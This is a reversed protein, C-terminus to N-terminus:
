EAIFHEKEEDICRHSTVYEIIEKCRIGYFELKSEFVDYLFIQHANEPTLNEVDYADVVDLIFKELDLKSISGDIYKLYYFGILYEGFSDSLSLGREKLESRIVGLAAHDEKVEALEILWFAPSSTKAIVELAWKVIDKSTLYQSDLIAFLIIFINRM